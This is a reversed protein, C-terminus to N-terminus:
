RQTVHQVWHTYPFRYVGTWVEGEVIGGAREVLRRYDAPHRVFRGRDLAMLVRALSAQSPEFCPDMTVLKGTPKLVALASRLAVEAVEDELHHLVGISVVHDVPEIDLSALDLVDGCVFVTNPSGYEQRADEIYSENSDVGIYQVGELHPVLRGNGCGFDLLRQGPVPMVAEEILRKMENSAGIM